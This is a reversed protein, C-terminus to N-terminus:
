SFVSSEGKKGGKTEEGLFWFKLWPDARTRTRWLLRM